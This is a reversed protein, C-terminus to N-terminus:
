INGSLIARIEDEFQDTLLRSVIHKPAKIKDVIEDLSASGNEFDAKFQARRQEPCLVGYAMWLATYEARVHLSQSEASQGFFQRIHTDLIFADNTAHGNSFQFYCHMLEKIVVFREYYQDQGDAVVVSFDSTLGHDNSCPRRVIFGRLGSIPMASTAQLSVSNVWSLGLANDVYWQRPLSDFDAQQRQHYLNRYPL